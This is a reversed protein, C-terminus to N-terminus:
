GSEAPGVGTTSAQYGVEFTTNPHRAGRPPLTMADRNRIVVWFAEIREARERRYRAGLFQRGFDGSHTWGRGSLEGDYWELIQAAYGEARRYERLLAPRDAEQSRRPEGEDYAEAWIAESNPFHRQWEETDALEDQTIGSSSV